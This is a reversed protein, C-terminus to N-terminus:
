RINGMRRIISVLAVGFGAVLLALWSGGGTGENIAREQRLEPSSMEGDTFRLAVDRFGDDKAAVLLKKEQPQSARKHKKQDAYANRSEAKDSRMQQLGGEVALVSKGFILIVGVLIFLVISKRRM